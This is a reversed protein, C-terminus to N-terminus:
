FTGPFTGLRGGDVVNISGNLYAGARSALYLIQGAMDVEDGIRGLPVIGRDITGDQGGPPLIAASMDSPFVTFRM